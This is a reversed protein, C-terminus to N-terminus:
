SLGFDPFLYILIFILCSAAQDCNLSSHNGQLVSLAFTSFLNRSLLVIYNVSCNCLLEASDKVVGLPLHVNPSLFATFYKMLEYPGEMQYLTIWEFFYSTGVSTLETMRLVMKLNIIRLIYNIKFAPLSM